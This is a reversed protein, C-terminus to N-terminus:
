HTSASTRSNTTWWRQRRSASSSRAGTRPQASGRPTTCTSAGTTAAACGRRVPTCVWGSACQTVTRGHKDRSCRQAAMAAEVAAAAQSFAMFFSDGETNVEVGGFEDWVTRLVQHHTALVDGYTDGLRHLLRTSGEIDSFLLTVEGTPLEVLRVREMSAIYSEHGPRRRM